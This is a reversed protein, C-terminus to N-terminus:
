SRKKSLVLTGAIMDHLAQKRPTFAAMVYGLLLLLTSVFKAFFRGSARGFSIRRKNLDTVVLGFAKKGPTARWASSESGAFYLWDVVIILLFYGVHAAYWSYGDRDKVPLVYYLAGAGVVLIIGDVLTAAVRQRFGAYISGQKESALPLSGEPEQEHKAGMYIGDRYRVTLAAVIAETEEPPLNQGLMTELQETSCHRYTETNRDGSM